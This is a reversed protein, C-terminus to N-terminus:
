PPDVLTVAVTIRSTDFAPLQRHGISINATSVPSAATGLTFATIDIVGAVDFTAHMWRHRIVDDGGRFFATGASALAAKVLAPGNVLDWGRRARAVNIAITGWIPVVEPRSFRVLMATGTSDIITVSRDGHTETGAGVFSYIAEAIAQDTVNDGASSGDYVIVEVSHPPLGTVGVHDTPNSYVSVAGDPVGQAILWRAMDARIADVPSTGQASLEERQRARYEATSEDALGISADLPNTIALWGSVNTERVTLHGAAAPIPGAREADLTVAYSGALTATVATRTVWRSSPDTDVSAISGAPLTVGAGLTVTAVVSGKTALRQASTGTLAGIVRLQDGVARDRDTGTYIAQALEWVESLASTTIGIIQAVAGVKVDLKAAGDPTRLAEIFQQELELKIQEHPKRVFGAATLGYPLTM